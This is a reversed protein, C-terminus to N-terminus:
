YAQNDLFLPSNFSPWWDLDLKIQCFNFYKLWLSHYYRNAQCIAQHQYTSSYFYLQRSVKTGLVIWIGSNLALKIDFTSTPGLSVQTQLNNMSPNETEGEPLPHRGRLTYLTRSVWSPLCQQSPDPFTQLLSSSLLHTNETEWDSHQHFLSTSYSSITATM